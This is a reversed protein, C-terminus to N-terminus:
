TTISTTDSGSAQPTQAADRGARRRSWVWALFREVGSVVHASRLSHFLEFAHQAGPIEAYCVPEHSTKRLMEVFLRAEEVPTLSDHTGHVVFFPPAGAHIRHLPSAQEWQERHTDLSTKMVVRALMGQLGHHLQASHHDTFDYIGYFPVCAQVTTDAGEFGPQFAPDNASLALLASLHGGASGGTVAVFGPDGGYEAIHAKVWALARKLDVIHDPWTAGPSLRYNPAVCVWGSRAMRMM